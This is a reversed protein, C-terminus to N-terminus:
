ESKTITVTEKAHNAIDLVASAGNKPVTPFIDELYSNADIV